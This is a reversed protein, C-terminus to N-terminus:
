TVTATATIGNAGTITLTNRGLTNTNWEPSVETASSTTIYGAQVMPIATNILFMVAGYAAVTKNTLNTRHNKREVSSKSIKTHGKAFESTVVFCHKTRSWIVKFIRNM